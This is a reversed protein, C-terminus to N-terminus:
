EVEVYCHTVSTTLLEKLHVLDRDNRVPRTEVLELYRNLQTAWEDPTYARWDSLDWYIHALHSHIPDAWKRKPSLRKGTKSFMPYMAYLLTSAADWFQGHITALPECYKEICEPDPIITVPIDFILNGMFGEREAKYADERVVIRTNPGYVECWYEESGSLRGFRTDLPQPHYQITRWVKEAPLPIYMKNSNEQIVKM